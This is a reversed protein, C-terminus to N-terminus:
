FNNTLFIVISCNTNKKTFSESVAGFVAIEEIDLKMAQELGIVNPILVPYSTNM